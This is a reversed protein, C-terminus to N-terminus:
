LVLVCIWGMTHVLSLLEAGLGTLQTNSRHADAAYLSFMMQRAACASTYLKGHPQLWKQKVASLVHGCANSKMNVHCAPQATSVESVGHSIQYGEPGKSYNESM